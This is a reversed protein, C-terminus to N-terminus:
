FVSQFDETIEEITIGKLLGKLGEPKELELLEEPGKVAEALGELRLVRAVEYDIERIVINFLGKIGPRVDGVGPMGKALESGFVNEVVDAGSLRRAEVELRDFLQALREIEDRPQVKVNLVLFTSLPRVDLEIMGGGTSRGMVEAQIQTFSSNLYALLAKLEV